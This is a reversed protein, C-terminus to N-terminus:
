RIRWAWGPLSELLEQQRATLKDRNRRQVAAWNQINVGNEVWGM